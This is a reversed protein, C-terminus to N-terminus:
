WHRASAWLLTRDSGWDTWTLWVCVSVNVVTVPCPSSAIHHDAEGM